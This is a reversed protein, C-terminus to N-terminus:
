AKARRKWKQTSFSWIQPTGCVQRFAVCATGRHERRAGDNGQPARPISFDERARSSDGHDFHTAIARFLQYILTYQVVRALNPDRLEAFYRYAAEEHDRLHGTEMEGGPELESGFTIPLAGTRRPVLISLGPKQVVASAGATNWNFLVQTGGSEELVIRSLPRAGFPFHDPRLPYAFHLYQVQGAESWSKLMQDTINLLAGFESDILARSLYIPAWDKLSHEGEGLKGAFLQNREYSQHLEDAGQKALLEYTEFRLPPVHATPSNRARGLLLVMRAHSGADTWAGGLM